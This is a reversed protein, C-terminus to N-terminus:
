DRHNDNTGTSTLRAEDVRESFMVDVRLGVPMKVGPDLDIVAELVNTDMREGPEDTRFNKRGMILGVQSVHGPFRRNGYADATIFVKQGVEIRGVDAEDVQARVRLHSLDAIQFIPTPPLLGMTEGAKQYRRLVTGTMPSRILTKELLGKASAIRAEAAQVQAEAIAVDEPRPPAEVLSLKEALARRKAEAADYDSQAQDLTARSVAKDVLAKQRDLQVRAFTETAQAARLAAQAEGREQDRAGANLRALESQRIKLEAEASTLEAKLDSNEIEGVVAGATLNQGEEVNLYDLRGAASASVTVVDSVPEVFGAAAVIGPLRNGQDSEEAVATGPSSATPYRLTQHQWSLPVVLAALPVLTLVITMRRFKM